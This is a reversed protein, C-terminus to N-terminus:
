TLEDTNMATKGATRSSSSVENRWRDLLAQPDDFIYLAGRLDHDSWHGGCRLAISAVGARAAAEIDYPTDGVMVTSEPGSRAKALAACVIDPDPKSEAADDNSARKGVLDDLGARALLAKMEQDDASTAIVLDTGQENLYELLARAGPTPRLQPLLEGFLAKKRRAIARGEPSEEELSALMPLLKDGGMGILPRVRAIDVRRGHESLAQAWATAHAANSDILTGDVDLLVSEFPLHVIM